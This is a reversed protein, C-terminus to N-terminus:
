FISKIEFNVSQESSGPNAKAVFSVDAKKILASGRLSDAFRYVIEPSNARGEILMQRPTKQSVIDLSSLKVGEPAFSYLETLLSLNLRGSNMYGKALQLNSMKNQLTSAESYIDRLETKLLNLYGRRAKVGFYFINALLSLNLLLLAAFIFISRKKELKEKQTRFEIPLLNINIARSGKRFALGKLTDLSNDIEIRVGLAQELGNATTELNQAKGSLIINDIPYGKDELITLTAEVPKILDKIGRGDGFNIGRSFELKGASIFIMEIFDDDLNVLLYNGTQRKQELFQNFLSVTSINISDCTIGARRLLSVQKSINEKLAVALMVRSYNDIGKEIVAHDYTLEEAKYPFLNNLEFEVMNKIESDNTTPLNLSKISVETRPIGLVLYDSAIKKDRLFSKIAIASEKEDQFPIDMREEKFIAQGRKAKVIQTLRISKKTIYIGSIKM